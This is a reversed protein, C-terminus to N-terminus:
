PSLYFYSPKTSSQCPLPPSMDILASGVFVDNSIGRRLAFCHTAKGHMLAAINGCAPLLCPITVYNPKVGEIQMERFLELAEMDKGNQSCSAIISTWSVINLEVQGKFQQFMELANDVLGNRSLGTVLANCAGVDTQDMEDYFRSMEFACACKGYVDILASVVCKDSVLGQKIVYCHIQFGMGLDELQGVAPLSSSISSGDPRFGESHMKKLVSVTDAYLGSQNFGAIMGNWLVVNPELGMGRMEYLLGVAEDVCGHRSYGSILASFIVVDRQPVRDFVKRADRIRDCKIYMHVLSSQVFSDFSFGSVCAIGHVQRGARPAAPPGACAKVVSPFLFGDPALGRSLMQSFLCLAHSFQNLKSFAHILTSFSFLNPNPISDLVLNAELFCLNNAYVSLLKTTVNTDNSLGTKLIQAHAQRAQSLSATFPNLFQLITQPLSELLLNLPQRTMTEEAVPEGSQDKDFFLFAKYLNEEKELKHRHMTATIFETYDITGNKDIDAADMLQKIETETLKSGLRTLGTKLEELTISGSGDTDINNFMEKLGHIEEESLNEAIVADMLQKIETETLKSGLRTLGTKLEELTISGSGDTDINNFMEKLGHIEEESLNEAIVKLALKKLKNMARFQKMRILVASDIPKDSAEKRMWPHELVQSATLRRRPDMALMKKILDKAEDSISPWPASQLDLKCEAIADLIPNNEFKDLRACIIQVILISTYRIMCVKLALKKLKNMARFQKMRILVASDIPKDSAEKRMWPHELVQSATLRRRPDMTLMKKILDKAEDSISPWPASQLDLKCEAIADLIGKETEAWFPPVGALLIYLMIGASWIDIEKGYSRQLVEPAVYYASGVIDRYVKGQEIFVSLGFDIAKLPADEDKSAFLFNEPKLDRHMVGMFHCVHVVNVIQRFIRTAERESYSGKAIIRDFLEGGTCLEMVLHLNQRDEYAGKFEAINPQGTLHQQIM